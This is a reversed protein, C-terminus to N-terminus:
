CKVLVRLMRLIMDNKRSNKDRWSESYHGSIPHAAPLKVEDAILRNIESILHRYADTMFEPFLSFGSLIELSLLWSTFSKDDIYQKEAPAFNSIYYIGEKKSWIYGLYQRQLEDPMCDCNQMIMLPYANWGNLCPGRYERNEQEWAKEDFSGRSFAIRLTRVFVDRKPKVVPNEPDFLNLQAATLYSRSHLHSKGDDHHKEVYDRWTEEGRVYREMLVICKAVVPDDKILSLEYARRLAAETSVFKKKKAHSSDMSHFRGWSGDTWQEDALQCYWKSLHIAELDTESIKENLIEKKLIYRPFPDSVNVLLYEAIDQLSKIM